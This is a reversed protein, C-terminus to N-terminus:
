SSTGSGNATAASSLLSTSRTTGIRNTLTVTMPIVSAPTGWVTFPQNFIFQSGITSTAFWTTFLSSVDVTLSGSFFESDPRLRRQFHLRGSQNGPGHCVRNGSYLDPGQSLRWQRRQHGSCQLDRSGRPRNAHHGIAGFPLLTSGASDASSLSVTITGSVTGTQMQLQTVPHRLM